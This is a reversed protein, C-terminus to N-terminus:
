LLQAEVETTSFRLLKLNPTREIANALYVTKDLYVVKFKGLGLDEVSEVWPVRQLREKIAFNDRTSRVGKVIVTVVKRKSARYNELKNMIDAGLNKALAEMAKYGADEMSPARGIASVSGSALIRLGGEDRTLLYYTLRATAVDFASRLGYGIDEGSRTTPIVDVKGVIMAGSLVKSMYSRLLIFRRQAVVREVYYPDINPNGAFDYVKFGQQNLINVLEVTVPNMEDLEVHSPKKTLLIVTFTTDSSILSLAKEAEEPYVCGKIEVRVMDEYNEEDVIKVDKIFGGVRNRIVEDLLQFNHVVTKVSTTIGLAKEIADWKARALAEVRASARDGNIVTAEGIGTSPICKVKRRPTEPPPLKERKVPLIVARPEKSATKQSPTGRCLVAGYKEDFKADNWWGDPRGARALEVAGYNETTGGNPEGPGFNKFDVASGDKWIWVGEREQDTLGIWAGHWVGPQWSVQKLLEVVKENEEKSHISAITMGEQACIEVASGWDIPGSMVILTFPPNQYRAVEKAQPVPMIKYISQQIGFTINLAVIILLLFM